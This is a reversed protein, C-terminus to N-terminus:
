CFKQITNNLFSTVPPGFFTEYLYKNIHLVRPSYGIDLYPLYKM